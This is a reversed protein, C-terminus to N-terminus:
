RPRWVELSRFARLFYSEPEYLGSLLDTLGRLLVPLPLVTRFNPPSFNTIAQSGEILRGRRKLRDFLAATPPAQLVGAMAWAIGTREIFELQRAFISEDDSDFGVIFGGLVWLGSEQITRVQQLNDIRLNQFKRSEKLAEASPPEIGIFVYMFNAEVM